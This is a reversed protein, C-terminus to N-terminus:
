FCERPLHSCRNGSARPSLSGRHRSSRGRDKDTVEMGTIGLDTREGVNLDRKDSDALMEVQVDELM